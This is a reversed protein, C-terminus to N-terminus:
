WWKLRLLLTVLWNNKVEVKTVEAVPSISKMVPLATTKVIETLKPKITIVAVYPAPKTIQVPEVPQKPSPIVVPVPTSNYIDLKPLDQVPCVDEAVIVNYQFMLASNDNQYQTNSDDKANQIATQRKLTNGPLLKARERGIVSIIMQQFLQKDEAPSYEQNLNKNIEPTVVSDFNALDDSLKKDYLANINFMNVDLNSQTTQVLVEMQTQIGISQAHINDATDCAFSNSSISVLIFLVFAKILSKM